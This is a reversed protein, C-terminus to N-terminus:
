FNVVLVVGSAATLIYKFRGELIQVCYDCVSSNLKFTHNIHMIDQFSCLVLLCTFYINFFFLATYKMNFMM